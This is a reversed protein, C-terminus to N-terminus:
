NNRKKKSTPPEPSPVKSKLARSVPPLCEVISRSSYESGQKNGNIKQKHQSLPKKRNRNQIESAFQVLIGLSKIQSLLTYPIRSWAFEMYERPM